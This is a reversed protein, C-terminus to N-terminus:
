QVLLLLTSLVFTMSWTSARSTLRLQCQGHRSLPLPSWTPQRHLLAEIGIRSWVEVPVQVKLIVSGAVLLEHTFLPINNEDSIANLLEVGSTQCGSRSLAEIGPTFLTRTYFFPLFQLAPTHAFSVGQEDKDVRVIACHFISCSIRYATGAENLATDIHHVLDGISAKLIDKNDLHTTIRLCTDKLIWVFYRTSGYLSTCLLSPIPLGVAFNVLSLALHLM